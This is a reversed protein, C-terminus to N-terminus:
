RNMSVPMDVNAVHLTVYTYFLHHHKLARFPQWILIGYSLSVIDVQCLAPASADRTYQLVM